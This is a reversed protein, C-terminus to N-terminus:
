TRRFFSILSIATVNLSLLILGYFGVAFCGLGIPGASILSNLLQARHGYGTGPRLWWPSALFFAMGWGYRLVRPNTRAFDQIQIQYYIYPVAFLPTAVVLLSLVFRTAGPTHSVAAFADIMPVIARLIEVMQRLWWFGNSVEAPVSIAVLFLLLAGAYGILDRKKREITKGILIV